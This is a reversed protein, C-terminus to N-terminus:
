VYPMISRYDIVGRWFDKVFEEGVEEAIHEDKLVFLAGRWKKAMQLGLRYARKM